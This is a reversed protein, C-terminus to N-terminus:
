FALASTILKTKCVILLFLPFCVPRNKKKKKKKKKESVLKAMKHFNYFQRRISTHM